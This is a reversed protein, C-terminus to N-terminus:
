REIVASFTPFGPRFTSPAPAVAAGLTGIGGHTGVVPGVIAELIDQVPLQEQLRERFARAEDAVEVHAVGAWWSDIGTCHDVLVSQLRALARKRTRVRDVAQVEGQRIALVPKVQLLTGVWASAAGIRGGRHLYELTDVTFFIITRAAMKQLLGVIQERSWGLEAARAAALVMMSLGVSVTGTDFLTIPVDGLIGKATAASAYTGSLRSALHISLIEHGNALIREYVEQFQGASPQSTTPLPHTNPLRRYFEEPTIDVGEMYRENGIHVNLPVIAINYREALRAPLNASSDTVIRIM